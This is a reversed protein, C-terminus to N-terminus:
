RATNKLAEYYEKRSELLQKSLGFVRIAAGVDQALCLDAIARGVRGNGDEFPHITEFWLHAIAARVLGGMGTEHSPSAAVSIKPTEFWKLFTDMERSVDNSAPSKFHVVERGQPGSVIQM